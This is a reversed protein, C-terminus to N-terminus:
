SRLARELVIIPHVAHRSTADALQHRCSTGPALLVTEPSAARVRPFLSLEGIKLSLDYHEKEYGFSGAMGCCGSPIEEVTLGPVLRLAALTGATGFLAKQHCHGHLLADARLEQFPLDSQTGHRDVIFQEVLFSHKAVADADDGGVLDGLDDRYTAICSPELGLLPIGQRVRPALLALNNSGNAKAEALLGKSIMPRGCCRLAPVEVRYGLAELVRVAAIGNDPEHYDTFTDALLLVSGLPSGEGPGAGLPLPSRPTRRRFWATFTERAFPPLARRRDIGAFRDLAWRAPASRLLPNALAAFRTGFRGARAANAFLRARLPTGHRAHYHALFEYKLKAMDVNSPCETKCAKCELCLDLADHIADGALEEAPLRGSLAARLLNARGRTSHKEELTARYSPCMTGDSKKRCAGVGSCLEVAGAFGGDRAFSFHTNLPFGEGKGEGLPLPPRYGAGYRLNADMPPAHVIKGPNMLWHPDFARKLEQFAGYLRPGFMREQFESRVLGDGHEASMAGGYELVLDAVGEAIARMRRVDESQKLNLVPRVHLCGVSAHAYYSAVCGHEQLLARFRRIYDALHEPAVATDEVFGVPKADGKMGMLLGLGAKRLNWVAKQEAPPLVPAWAYGLRRQELRAALACVQEKVSAADKGYFEVVLIAEPDGQLFTASHALAANGRSLQLITRDTLEVAAPAFALCEPTAELAEILDNFHAVLLGTAAPTPVLNLTAETVVALTGESGVTLKALSHSDRRVFEDLNYGGVRRMIRPFRRDIEERHEEVLRGVESYIRAELGQGTARREWETVDLEHFRAESGDALVVHQSLVHDVTKGYLVSHAGSSNNGMMGGVSARNSTAVDPAFQLGLPRLESNLEDLIVGPQVRVRAADPDVELVRNMYMSFDLVLAEGVTQGGLSTGSGRPLLPIGHRAALTVAAVVDGAHRPIVVGIPMIQYVSADTSYLIRTVQDFRVDGELRARLDSELDRLKEDSASIM